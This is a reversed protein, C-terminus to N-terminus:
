VVQRWGSGRHRAWPPLLGFAEARPRFGTDLMYDERNQGENDSPNTFMGHLYNVTEDCKDRGIRREMTQKVVVGCQHCGYVLEDEDPGDHAHHPVRRVREDTDPVQPLTAGRRTTNKHEEGSDHDNNRVRVNKRDIPSVHPAFCRDRRLPGARHRFAHRHRIGATRAVPSTGQSSLPAAIRSWFLHATASSRSFREVLGANPSRLPHAAMM